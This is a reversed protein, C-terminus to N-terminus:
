RTTKPLELEPINNIVPTCQGRDVHYIALINELDDYFRVEIGCAHSIWQANDFYQQISLDQAPYTRCWAQWGITRWNYGDAKLFDKGQNEGTVITFDPRYNIGNWWFNRKGRDCLLVIRGRIGLFSIVERGVLLNWLNDNDGIIEAFSQVNDIQSDKDM